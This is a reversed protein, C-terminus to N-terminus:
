QVRVSERINAGDRAQARREQRYTVVPTTAGVVPPTLADVVPTDLNLDQVVEEREQDSLPSLIRSLFNLLFLIVGFYECRTVSSGVIPQPDLITPREQGGLLM